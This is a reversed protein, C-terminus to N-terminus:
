GLPQGCQTCFRQGHGNRMGCNRCVAAASPGGTADGALAQGCNTCFRDTSRNPARCRPCSVWRGTGQPPGSSPAPQAAPMVALPQGCHTCFRQSAANQEHCRPCRVARERFGGSTPARGITHGITQHPASIPGSLRRERAGPPVPTQAAVALDLAASLETAQQFRESPDKELAKLVVSQVAPSIRPNLQSPPPVPDYVHAHALATYSDAQFPTRGTLMEYLMVGLAYVDCRSDVAVGRCQEPSMYEPTGVGAGVRTLAASTALIKAIGFDSLVARGTLDMLVNAPKVDRHVIGKSHAYGLASAVERVVRTIEGLPIPHALRDGLNGGAVYEMVIYLRGDQEGADHVVVIHPHSLQAMARAELKFREVFADDIAYQPPLVKIAVDRELHEQRGLYVTAMGGVGLVRQIVCHGIQTGSLDDGTRHSSADQGVNM